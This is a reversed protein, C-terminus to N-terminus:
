ILSQVERLTYISAIVAVIVSVEAHKKGVLSGAVSKMFPYIYVITALVLVLEVIGNLM